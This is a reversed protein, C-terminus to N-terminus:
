KTLKKNYWEKFLKENEGQYICESCNNCCKTACDCHYRQLSNLKIVTPPVYLKKYKKM